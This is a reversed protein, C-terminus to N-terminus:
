IEKNKSLIFVIQLDMQDYAMASVHAIRGELIHFHKQVLNIVEQMNRSSVQVGKVLVQQAPSIFFPTNVIM